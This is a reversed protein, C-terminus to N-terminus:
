ADGGAEAWAAVEAYQANTVDAVKLGDFRAQMNAESLGSQTLKTTLLRQKSASIPEDGNVVGAKAAPPASVTSAPVAERAATVPMDIVDSPAHTIARPMVVPEPAHIAEHMDREVIRQAEDEDYIGGFGFALRACQITAKHRLFRKTHSQWPGPKMKNGDTYTGLPRYVEDLYERACTPKSRDKRHIVCEIWPPCLKADADIKTWESVDPLVFSIGNMMPHDNIIRSWGDLGVVPVIGNAKDPFAFIERTFPNLGYQDAVILLAAMQEDSVEPGNKQKFATAKLTSLLRNPEISFKDAFKSVLSVRRRQQPAAPEVAPPPAIPEVVPADLEATSM